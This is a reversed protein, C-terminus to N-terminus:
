RSLSAARALRSSDTAPSQNRPDGGENPQHSVMIGELVIVRRRLILFRWRHPDRRLLILVSFPTPTVHDACQAENVALLTHRFRDEASTDNLLM